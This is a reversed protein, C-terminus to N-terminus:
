AWTRSCRCCTPSPWPRAPASSSRACSGPPAELPRYLSLALRRGAPSRRSAASTPSRRARCGTPATPPPFAEAYRRCCRAARAGRRARRSRRRSTTPGPARPQWSGRRSRARTTRRAPQGARRLRPLAAPRARVGLRAHHLRHEHARFARRLIREIRRRNETNFRDRPVFVLCSLFRGFADRRVFLRLRQREGLHLIGMAIEFLEDVATQFLEDRPHTELIEILAKENHSGHPFAARELM